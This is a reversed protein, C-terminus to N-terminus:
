TNALIDHIADIDAGEQICRELELQLCELIKANAFSDKSKEALATAFRAAKENLLRKERESPQEVKAYEVIPEQMMEVGTNKNAMEGRDRWTESEKNTCNQVVNEALTAVSMQKSSTRQKNASANEREIVGAWFERGEKTYKNYGFPMRLKNDRLLKIFRNVAHKFNTIGKRQCPNLISFKIWGFVSQIGESVCINYKKMTTKIAALLYAIQRKNLETGISELNNLNIDSDRTNNNIYIDKEDTLTNNLSSSESNEYPCVCFDSSPQNKYLNDKHLQEIKNYQEQAISCYWRGSMRKREILNLQELQKIKNSATRECFNFHESILELSTEWWIRGEKEIVWRPRDLKDFGTIKYAIFSYLLSLEMDNTYYNIASIKRHNIHPKETSLVKITTRKYGKQNTTTRITVVGLNELIKVSKQLVSKGCNFFQELTEYTTTIVKEIGQTRFILYDFLLTTFSDYTSRNTNKIHQFNACLAASYTQM